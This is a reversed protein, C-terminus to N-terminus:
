GTAGRVARRVVPGTRWAGVTVDLAAAGVVALATGPGTLVAAVVAALVMMAVRRGLLRRRVRVQVCGIPHGSTVLHGVVLASGALKADHDDWETGPTVRLGRHRLAAVIAAAIASRPTPQPLLMVGARQATAPGALAAPETGDRHAGSVVTCHRSWLRVLPQLMHHTAVSARFAGRGTVLHRPPQARAVDLLGLAVLAVLGGAATLAFLPSLLAVPTGLVAAAALPVGLQHAVDVRYDGAGYISQYSAAGFHGRYIRQRCLPPRNTYIRGVWRATGFPTFRDPHRAQVMAEARGYGRQQRLYARLGVRRHHWVLAAPHYGIEWGRDLVKWCLDVDDGASTYVPDFGGVETLVDKWFAMNCGPIHEARDDALLVQVPGGPAQAVVQGGLPEDPPPVNPGGVGGIRRGDFGLALYYPWEPTPYADSDLYAVISGRAARFGENRAVSLGGHPISLLRARHHRRAIDATADTSGDDVVVIDLAPYDLACTHALCEGLTGAANYACIVVSLTPWREMVDAVRRRNHRAVVELAPGPTRDQRTLGFRWGEVAAGAVCWEDTWSFACVGAVGRELAVGLQEDLLDAQARAGAAGEEAHRGIEGLVLPREGARHHLRTVYRRLDEARDLFVNFTVFDLSDLSLYETSPYNGYTVLLDPDIERVAGALQDILSAVRRAGHWRVVDAPVENGLCIALVREDGALRSAAARIEARADRGLRAAQRRSAGLLYRWDPWFVGALVRLDRQGALDLLDAPPETYTRVVTFGAESMADLDARMRDPEPVLAGDARARFTGYTVGRFHFRGSDTSFFKGDVRVRGTGASSPGAVAPSPRVIVDAM